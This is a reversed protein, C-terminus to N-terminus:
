RSAGPARSSCSARLRNHRRRHESRPRRQSIFSCAVAMAPDTFETSAIGMKRLVCELSDAKGTVMAMLPIDGQAQTSPMLLKPAKNAGCSTAVDVQFTRRWRGLQIVLTLGKGVPVNQLKFSGDVGTYTGAPPDSVTPDSVLPSGAASAGCVDCTIGKPFTKLDPDDPNNAIYVLVHYLPNKGAPDYVKGTLTTTTGTPCDPIQSCAGTCGCVGPVPKGKADSGGGCTWGPTSCTLPGCTLLNGCNDAAQGCTYGRGDCTTTPDVECASSQCTGQFCSDGPNPCVTSGCDLLNGCNDAAQGCTYGRGDCTTAPDVTCSGGKGTGEGCQNAAQGGCVQGDPCSTGCQVVGGCKTDTTYGCDANLEDCTSPECSHSGGTTAGKGCRSAGGGGCVEGKPCQTGCQVVGGCLTDTVFGCDANLAECSSPCGSGLEGGGINLGTGPGEGGGNETAGVNGNQGKDNNTLEPNGSCGSAVAFGLVSFVVVARTLFSM